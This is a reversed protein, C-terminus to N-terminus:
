TNIPSHNVQFTLEGLTVWPSNGRKYEYVICWQGSLHSTVKKSLTFGAASFWEKFHGDVRVASPTGFLQNEPTYFAFRIIDDEEVGFVRIWALVLEDESSFTTQRPARNIVDKVSIRQHTLGMDIAGFPIYDIPNAWLNSPFPDVVKGYHRIVFHLHPFDARGSSGMLGLKEGAKVKDGQKVRISGLKMHCYQTTWQPNHRILLGNGCAKEEDFDYKRSYHDPAEDRIGLVTGDAAALVPIGKDMMEYTAVAIDTGTHKDNTLYGGKFDIIEDRAGNDVYLQVYCNEGLQCDVPFQFTTDGAFAAQTFTCAYLLLIWRIM